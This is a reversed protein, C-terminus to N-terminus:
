QDRVRAGCQHCFVSDEPLRTGCYRCFRVPPLKKEAAEGAPAPAQPVPAEPESAAAPAPEAPAQPAPVPEAAPAPAPQEPAPAAPADTAQPPMWDFSIGEQQEAPAAPGGAQGSGPQAGAPTGADLAPVPSPGEGDPAPSGKKKGGRTLLFYNVFGYVVTWLWGASLNTKFIWRLLMTVILFVAIQWILVLKRAKKREMPSRRVVFRYILMPLCYYLMAVLIDLLFIVPWPVVWAIYDLMQLYSQDPTVETEKTFRATDLMDVLIDEQWKDIEDYSILDFRIDWGARVTYYRLAQLGDEHFGALRVFLAQDTEYLSASEWYLGNQGSNGMAEDVLSQRASEPIKRFDDQSFEESYTTGLDLEWNVGWPVAALRIDLAELNTYWDEIEEIPYELREAATEAPLIDPGLVILEDPLTVTLGIDELTYTQGEEADQALAGPLALCALALVLLGAFLKKKM